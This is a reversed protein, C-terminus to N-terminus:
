YTKYFSTSCTLSNFWKIRKRRKEEQEQEQEEQEEEAPKIHGKANKVITKRQEWEQSKRGWNRIGMIKLDEQIADLWRSAPRGIQRTDESKHLTLKRCPNQEQM